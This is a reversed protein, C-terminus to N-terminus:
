SLFHEEVWAAADELTEVVLSAHHQLWPSVRVGHPVVAVIGNRAKRYQFLDAAYFIEMATGWSVQWCNALVIDSDRIDAKDGEVIEKACDGERGRYDRRMPNLFGCSPLRGMVWKRWDHAEGDDCGNIPGALYITPPKM